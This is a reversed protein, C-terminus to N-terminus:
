KGDLLNFTVGKDSAGLEAFMAAINNEERRPGGAYVIGGQWEERLLVHGIRASRVPGVSLPLGEAFSDNFLFTIRTQGSRYLIGEYVIDAYQGGWPARQGIGAATVNKGDVKVSGEPNSIQVLMPMYLSDGSVPMGTTPSRGEIVPNVDLAGAAPTINRDAIDQLVVVGETSLTYNTGADNAALAPVATLALVAILLMSLIRKM